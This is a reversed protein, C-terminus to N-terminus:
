KEWRIYAVPSASLVGYDPNALVFLAGFDTGAAQGAIYEDPAYGKAFTVKNKSFDLPVIECYLPAGPVKYAFTCLQAQIYNTPDVAYYGAIGSFTHIREKKLSIFNYFNMEPITIRDVQFGLLQPTLLARVPLQEPDYDMPAIRISNLSPYETAQVSGFTLGMNFPEYVVVDGTISNSYYFMFILAAISVIGLLIIEIKDM